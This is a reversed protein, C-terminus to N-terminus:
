GGANSSNVWGKGPVYNSSELMVKVPPPTFVAPVGMFPYPMNEVPPCPPDQPSGCVFGAAGVVGPGGTQGFPQSDFLVSGPFRWGLNTPNRYILYVPVGDQQQQANGQGQAAVQVQSGAAQVQTTSKTKQRSFLGM